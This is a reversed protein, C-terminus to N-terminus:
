MVILRDKPTMPRAHLIGWMHSISALVVPCLYGVHETHGPDQDINSVVEVRRALLDQVWSLSSSLDLNVQFNSSPQLRHDDTM